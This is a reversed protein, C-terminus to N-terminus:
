DTVKLTKEAVADATEDAGSGTLTFLRATYTGVPLVLGFTGDATCGDGMTM